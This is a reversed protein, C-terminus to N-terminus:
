ARATLKLMEERLKGVLKGALLYVELEEHTQIGRMEQCHTIRFSIIATRRHNRTMGKVDHIAVVVASAGAISAVVHSKDDESSGIRVLGFSEVIALSRALKEHVFRVVSEQKLTPQIVRVAASTACLSFRFKIAIQNLAFNGFKLTHGIEPFSFFIAAVFIANVDSAAVTETSVTIPRVGIEVSFNGNASVMLVVVLNEIDTCVSKTNGARAFERVPKETVIAIVVTAFETVLTLIIARFCPVNDIPVALANVDAFTTQVFIIAKTFVALLIEVFALHSHDMVARINAGTAKSIFIQQAVLAVFIEESVFNRESDVGVAIADVDAIIAAIFIVTPAGFTFLEEVVIRDDSINTVM